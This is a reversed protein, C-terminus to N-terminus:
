GKLLSELQKIRDTNRVPYNRLKDIEEKIIINQIKNDLQNKFDSINGDVKGDPSITGKKNGTVNNYVEISGDDSVLYDYKGPSWKEKLNKAIRARERQSIEPVVIKNDEKKLEPYDALINELVIKDQSLDALDDRQGQFTPISKDKTAAFEKEIQQLRKEIDKRTKYQKKLRNERQQTDQSMQESIKGAAEQASKLRKEIENISDEGKEYREIASRLLSAKLKHNGAQPSKLFKKAEDLINGNERKNKLEPYDKLVEDSPEKAAPSPASSFEKYIIDFNKINRRKLEELVIEVNEKHYEKNKMLRLQRILDDTDISQAITSIKGKRKQESIRKNISDVTEQAKGPTGIKERNILVKSENYEEVYSGNRKAYATQQINIPKKLLEQIANYQALTNEDSKLKPYKEFYDEIEIKEKLLQFVDNKERYKMQLETESAYKVDVKKEKEDFLGQQKKGESFLGTDWKAVNEAQKKPSTKKPNVLKAAGKPLKGSKIKEMLWAMERQKQTQQADPKKKIQPKDEGGFISAQPKAKPQDEPKKVRGKPKEGYQVKGQKDIWYKGGRSGPKEVRDPMGALGMQSKVMCLVGRFRCLISKEFDPPSQVKVGAKRKLYNDYEDRSQFYRYKRDNKTSTTMPIKTYYKRNAVSKEIEIFCLKSGFKVVVQGKDKDRQVIAAKPQM